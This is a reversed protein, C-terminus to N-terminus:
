NEDTLILKDKITMSRSREACTHFVRVVIILQKKNEILPCKM